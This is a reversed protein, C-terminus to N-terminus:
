VTVVVSQLEQQSLQTLMDMLRGDIEGKLGDFEMAVM